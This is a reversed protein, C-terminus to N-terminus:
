PLNDIWDIVDDDFNPLGESGDFNHHGGMEYTVLKVESNGAADLYFCSFTYPVM